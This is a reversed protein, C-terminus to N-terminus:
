RGRQQAWELTDPLNGLGPGDGARLRPTGARHGRARRLPGARVIYWALLNLGDVHHDPQEALMHGLDVIAAEVDGCEGLYSARALLADASGNGAADRRAEAAEEDHGLAAAAVSRIAAVREFREAVTEDSLSEILEYAQGSRGPRLLQVAASVASLHANASGPFQDTVLRFTALVEDPRHPAALAHARDNIRWGARV